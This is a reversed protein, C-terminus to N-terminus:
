GFRYNLTDAVSNSPHVRIEDVLHDLESAHVADNALGMHFAEDGHIIRGTLILEAARKQGVVASLAVAAALVVRRAQVARM